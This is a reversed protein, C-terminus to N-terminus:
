YRWLDRYSPKFPPFFGAGSPDITHTVLAPEVFLRSGSIPKPYYTSELSMTLLSEASDTTSSFTFVIMVPLDDFTNLTTPVVGKRVFSPDRSKDSGGYLQWRRSDLFPSRRKVGDREATDAAGAKCDSGNFVRIDLLKDGRVRKARSSGLIM